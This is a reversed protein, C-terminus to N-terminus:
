LTTELSNELSDYNFCFQDQMEIGYSNSSLAFPIDGSRDDFLGIIDENSALQQHDKGTEEDTEEESITPNRKVLERFISSQLLLGLATPSSSKNCSVIPLNRERVEEECLNAERFSNTQIFFSLSNEAAHFDISPATQLDKGLKTEQLSIQNNTGPRLWRIYTSM